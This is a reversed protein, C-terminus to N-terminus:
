LISGCAEDWESKVPASMFARFSLHIGLDMWTPNYFPLRLVQIRYKKCLFYTATKIENELVTVVVINLLCMMTGGGGFFWGM